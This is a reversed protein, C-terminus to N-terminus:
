SGAQESAEDLALGTSFISQRDAETLPIAFWRDLAAVSQAETAVSELVRREMSGESRRRVEGRFFTLVGALRVDGEADDDLLARMALLQSMFFSRPHTATYYNVQYYDNFFFELEVFCNQEVWPASDDLSDRTSYVWLRQAPDTHQDISRYELRGRRPALVTFETGSVLPIPQMAADGGFGVDVVYKVGDITVILCM